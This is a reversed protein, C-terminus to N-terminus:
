RHRGSNGAAPPLPDALAVDLARPQPTIHAAAVIRDLRSALGRGRLIGAIRSRAAGFAPIQRAEVQLLNWGFRDPFPASVRGVPTADLVRAFAPDRSDPVLWGLEGGASRSAADDSWHRALAAFGAGARLSGALAVIRAHAQAPSRRSRPHLADRDSLLLYRARVRAFRRRHRRYYAQESALSPQAARALAAILASDLGQLYALRPQRPLPPADLHRREAAQALALLRGYWAAARRPHLLLGAREPPDALSEVAARLESRRVRHGGVLLVVPDSTAAARPPAAAAAAAALLAAALAAASWTLSRM